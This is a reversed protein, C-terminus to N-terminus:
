KIVSVVGRSNLPHNQIVVKLNSKSISLTRAINRKLDGSIQRRGYRILLQVSKLKELAPMFQHVWQSRAGQNPPHDQPRHLAAVAGCQV